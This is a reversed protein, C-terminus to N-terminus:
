AEEKAEELRKEMQEGQNQTFFGSVQYIPMFVDMYFTILSGGEELYKDYKDKVDDLKVGHHWKKMAAHTIYLMNTLPPIGNDSGSLNLLNTKFKEELKCVDATTLKLRFEEGAVEWIAFAKRKPKENKEEVETNEDTAIIM